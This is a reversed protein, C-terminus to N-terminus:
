DGRGVTSEYGLMNIHRDLLKNLEANTDAEVVVVLLM